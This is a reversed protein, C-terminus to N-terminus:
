EGKVITHKCGGIEDVESAMTNLGPVGPQLLLRANGENKGTMTIGGVFLKMLMARENDEAANWAEGVRAFANQAAAMDPRRAQGAYIAKELRLKEQKLTFQEAELTELRRLVTPSAADGQRILVSAANEVQRETTRLRNVVGALEREMEDTRPLLKIAERLIAPLVSSYRGMRHIEWLVAQHLQLANVRKVPCARGITTRKVVSVCEYYAVRSSRGDHYMTTMVGDCHECRVLGRLYYLAADHVPTSSKARRAQSVTQTEALMEQVVSFLAEDIMVLADDQRTLERWRVEGIYVRNSLVYSVTRHTWDREPVAARLYDIVTPRSRTAAMLRFAERVTAVDDQRAALRRLPTGQSSLKGEVPVTEYGFPVGGGVFYGENFLDIMRTITWNRVMVPYMGDMLNTMKKATHGMLDDAFKEQVMEVRVGAEKLLYEAITFADGRGLRSMYTVVVVDFERAEAAALLRKWGPRQLKTGTFGDDAFTGVCQGGIQRIRETNINTQSDCTTYDGQAQDDTSCRAYSVYRLSAPSVNKKPQAM